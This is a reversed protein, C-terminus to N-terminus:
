KYGMTENMKRAEEEKAAVWRSTLEKNEATLKENDKEKVNLQMQLVIMDDQVNEALKTKEKAEDTTDKMKRELQRNKKELQTIQRSQETTTTKYMNNEAALLSIQSEQEGRVKNSSALEARIQAINPPEAPALPPPTGQSSSRYYRWNSKSEAKSARAQITETSANPSADRQEAAILRAKEAAATRDALTTFANIYKEHAKERKDRAELASLYQKLPDVPSNSTMM